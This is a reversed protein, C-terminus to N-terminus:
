RKKQGATYYLVLVFTRRRGGGHFRRRPFGRGRDYVKLRLYESPHGHRIVNEVRAATSRTPYSRTETRSPVCLTVRATVGSEARVSFFFSFYKRTRRRTPDHSSLPSDADDLTHCFDGVSWHVRGRARRRLAVPLNGHGGGRRANLTGNDERGTSKPRVFRRTRRGPRCRDAIRGM